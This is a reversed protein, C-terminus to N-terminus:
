PTGKPKTTQDLEPQIPIAESLEADLRKVLQKFVWRLEDKSTGNDTDVKAISRGKDDKGYWITITDIENM